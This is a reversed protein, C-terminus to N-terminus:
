YKVKKIKRKSTNLILSLSSLHWCPRTFAQLVSLPLNRLQFFSNWSKKHCLPAFDLVVVAVFVEFHSIVADTSSWHTSIMPIQAKFGSLSSKGAALTTWCYALNSPLFHAGREQLYVLAAKWTSYLCPFPHNLHRLTQSFRGWSVSELKMRNNSWLSVILVEM